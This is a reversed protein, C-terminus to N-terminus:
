SGPPPPMPDPDPDPDPDEETPCPPPPQGDPAYTFCLDQGFPQVPPDEERTPQPRITVTLPLDSAWQVTAYVIQGQIVNAGANVVLPEASSVTARRRLLVQDQDNRITVVAPAPASHSTGDVLNLRVKLSETRFRQTSVAARSMACASMMCVFVMMCLLKLSSM